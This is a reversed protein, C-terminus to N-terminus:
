WKVRVRKEEIKPFDSTVEKGGVIVKDFGKFYLTDGKLEYQQWDMGGAYKPNDHYIFTEKYNSDSLEYKGYGAFLIKGTSDTTILSFIGNNFMKFLHFNKLNRLTDDRKAWVIEWAGDIPTASVNTEESITQKEGTATNSNCSIIITFFINMLFVPLPLSNKKM